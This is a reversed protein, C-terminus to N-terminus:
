ITAVFTQSAIEGYRINEHFMRRFPNISLNRALTTIKSEAAEGGVHADRTKSPPIDFQFGNTKVSCLVDPNLIYFLRRARKRRVIYQDCGDDGSDASGVQVFIDGTRDHGRRLRVDVSSRGIGLNQTM